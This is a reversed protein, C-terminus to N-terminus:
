YRREVTPYKGRFLELEIEMEQQADAIANAVRKEELTLSTSPLYRKRPPLPLCVQRRRIIRKKM